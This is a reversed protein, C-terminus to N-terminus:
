LMPPLRPRRETSMVNRGFVPSVTTGRHNAAAAKSFRYDGGDLTERGGSLIRIGLFGSQLRPCASLVIVRRTADAALIRPQQRAISQPFPGNSRACGEVGTADLEAATVNV